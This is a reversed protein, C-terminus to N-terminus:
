RREEEREKSWIAYECFERDWWPQPSLGMELARERLALMAHSDEIIREKIRSMIRDM